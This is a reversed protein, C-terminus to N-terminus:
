LARKMRLVTIIYNGYGGESVFHLLASVDLPSEFSPRYIPQIQLSYLKLEIWKTSTLSNHFGYGIGM